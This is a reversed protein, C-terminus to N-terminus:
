ALKEGLIKLGQMLTWDFSFDVSISGLGGLGSEGNRVM